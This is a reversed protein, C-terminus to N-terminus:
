DQTALSFAAEVVDALVLWSLLITMLAASNMLSTTIPHSGLLPKVVAIALAALLSLLLGYASRMLANRTKKFVQAEVREEIRNLEVHINLASALSITVSVGMFALFDGAVFSALFTNNDGLVWPAAISLMVM